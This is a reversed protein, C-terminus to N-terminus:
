LDTIFICTEGLSYRRAIDVPLISVLKLSADFAEGVIDILRGETTLNVRVDPYGRDRLHQNLPM